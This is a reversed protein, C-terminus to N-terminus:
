LFRLSVSASSLCPYLGVTAVVIVEGVGEELNIYYAHCASPRIHLDAPALHPPRHLYLQRTKSRDKHDLTQYHIVTATISITHSFFPIVSILTHTDFLDNLPVFM